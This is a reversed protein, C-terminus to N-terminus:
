EDDDDDLDGSIEFCHFVALWFSNLALQADGFTTERARLLADCINDGGPLGGNGNLQQTSPQQQTSPASLSALPSEGLLSPVNIQPVSILPRSIAISKTSVPAAPAESGREAILLSGFLAL